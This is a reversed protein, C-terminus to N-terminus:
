CDYCRDCEFCWMLDDDIKVNLRDCKPCKCKRVSHLYFLKILQTTLYYMDDDNDTRIVEVVQKSYDQKEELLCDSQKKIVKIIEERLDM